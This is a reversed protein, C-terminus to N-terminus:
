CLIRALTVGHAVLVAALHQETLPGNETLVDAIVSVVDPGMADVPDAM